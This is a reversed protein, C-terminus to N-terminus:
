DTIWNKQTAADSYLLSLTMHLGVATTCPAGTRISRQWLRTLMRRGSLGSRPAAFRPKLRQVVRCPVAALNLVKSRIEESTACFTGEAAWHTSGASSGHHRKSSKLPTKITPALSSKRRSWPRQGAGDRPKVVKMLHLLFYGPNELNLTKM